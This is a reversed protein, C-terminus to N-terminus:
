GEGVRLAAEFDQRTLPRADIDNAGEQMREQERERAYSERTYRRMTSLVRADHAIQQKDVADALSFGPKASFCAVTTFLTKLADGKLVGEKKGGLRDFAGLGAQVCEKMSSGTLASTHMSAPVEPDIQEKWSPFLLGSDARAEQDQM